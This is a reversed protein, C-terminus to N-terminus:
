LNSLALILFYVKKTNRPINSTPDASLPAACDDAMSMTPLAMEPMPPLPMELPPIVIRELEHGKCLRGAISPAM